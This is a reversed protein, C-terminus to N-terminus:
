VEEFFNDGYINDIGYLKRKIRRLYAILDDRNFSTIIDKIKIMRKYTVENAFMPFRNHVIKKALFIQKVYIDYVSEIASATVPYTSLDHYGNSYLKYQHYHYFVIPYGDVEPVDNKITLKRHQINWVAVGAGPNELVKVSKFLMPWFDLCTQGPFNMLRTNLYEFCRLKWYYLVLRAETNNKFANFQVCFKGSIITQDYAPSYSHPVLSISDDGLEEFLIEPDSFFLSDAELYTIMDPAFKDLIFQCLLPQCIWCFQGHTTRNRVDNIEPTILDDVYIPIVGELALGKMVDYSIADMCLPYFLFGKSVKTLSNYLVIAQYLYNKDFITCYSRM